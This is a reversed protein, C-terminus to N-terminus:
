EKNDNGNILQTLGLEHLQKLLKQPTKEDLKVYKPLGSVNLSVITGIAQKNISYKM